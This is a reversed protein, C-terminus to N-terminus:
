PHELFGMGEQRRADGRRDTVRDVERRVSTDM